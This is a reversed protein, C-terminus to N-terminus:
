ALYSRILRGIKLWKLRLGAFAFGKYSEIVRKLFEGDIDCVTRGRYLWQPVVATRSIWAPDEGPVNKRPGRDRSGLTWAVYGAERAAAVAKDDYAGGPWCLFRVPRGTLNDLEQKSLLIEERLRTMREDDSEYRDSLGEKFVGASVRDLEARWGPNSFFREAGHGDVYDALASEVSPDPFYRRAIAAKEHAYVPSGLRVLGSQDEALYLPKREPRANWALWPYPDQPRHYDVIEPSTFYWTHTKCHGQVDMSESLLMRGVEDSRLFGRYELDGASARGQRVDDLNARTGARRDIFDTSVFVTGKFGHKRLIPFAFVWNDLYGDDFTLVVAKPPLRRKGSVFDFLDSLLIGTYGASKLTVIHDEFVDPHISLYKFAWGEIEPAISHYMLVPVPETM